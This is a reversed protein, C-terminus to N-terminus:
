KKGINLSMNMKGKYAATLRDAHDWADRETGFLAHTDHKNIGTRKVAKNTKKNVVVYDGGRTVELVLQKFTKM